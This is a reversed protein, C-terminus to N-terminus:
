LTPRYRRSTTIKPHLPSPGGEQIISSRTQWVLITNALRPLTPLCPGRLITNALWESHNDHGYWTMKRRRVIALLPDHIDIAKTIEECIASKTIHTTYPVNLIRRLSRSEFVQLKRETEAYLTWIECGHLEVSITIARM